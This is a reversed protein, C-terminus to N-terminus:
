KRIFLGSIICATNVFEFDGFLSAYKRIFIRWIIRIYIRGIRRAITRGNAWRNMRVIIRMRLGNMNLQKCLAL